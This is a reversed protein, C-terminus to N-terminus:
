DPPDAGSEEAVAPRGENSLFREVLGRIVAAMSFGHEGCWDRLQAHLDQPLRVTVLQSDEGPSLARLPRDSIVTRFQHGPRDLSAQGRRAHAAQSELLWGTIAQRDDSSAQELLRALARAPHETM